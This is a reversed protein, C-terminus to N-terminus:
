DAKRFTKLRKTIHDLIERLYNENNYDQIIKQTEEPSIQKAFETIKPLARVVNDVITITATQATRSLPNLDIAIITKGMNKLAQCRDGDELAVVVVDAKYIGQSCCNARSYDLNPIKKDPHLGRITDAGNKRLVKAIRAVRKKDYHFLNVELQANVTKALDCCEKAALAAVNGNVSIVPHTAEILCAAATKEADETVLLTKEGILYDFTEGRGHAILGTEHVIGKKMAQSVKERLILSTYRPHTKPIM